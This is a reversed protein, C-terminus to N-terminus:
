QVKMLQSIIREPLIGVVISNGLEKTQEFYERQEEITKDTGVACRVETGLPTFEMICTVKEGNLARQAIDSKSYPGLILFENERGRLSFFDIHNLTTLKPNYHFVGRSNEHRSMNFPLPIEFTGVPFMQVMRKGAILQNQQILLTDLSEPVCKGTDFM